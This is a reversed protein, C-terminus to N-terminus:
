SLTKPPRNEGKGRAVVSAEGGWAAPGYCRAVSPSSCPLRRWLPRALNSPSPTQGPAYEQFPPLYTLHLFVISHSHQVQVAYATRSCFFVVVSKSQTHRGTRLTSISDIILKTEKSTSMSLVRGINTQAIIETSKAGKQYTLDNQNKTKENKKYEPPFQRIIQLM